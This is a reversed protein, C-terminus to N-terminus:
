KLKGVIPLNSLVSTGHPSNLIVKSLDKGATVGSFHRGNHWNSAHTVDYVIKNVAVYAPKGNLGNYQKLQSLTFTRKAAANKTNKPKTSKTIVKNNVTQATGISKTTQTSKQQTSCGTTILFILLVSFLFSKKM